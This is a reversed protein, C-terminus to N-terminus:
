RKALFRNAVGMDQESIDGAIAALRLRNLLLNIEEDLLQLRAAIYDSQAGLLELTTRSGQRHSRVTAALRERSLDVMRNLAAIRAKGSNAAFWLANVQREIELSMREYELRSKEALHYAEDKRASRYGDTLPVTLQVGLLGNNSRNTATGFDGNGKARQADVQAILDLRPSFANGFKDIEARKAQEQLALMKLQQNNQRARAVWDSASGLPMSEADFREDLGEVKIQQGTLETLMLLDNQYAQETNLLKLKIAEVQEATARLDIRSADGLNARRSIEAHTNDVAQQQEQLLSLMTNMRLAEFYNESVRLMLQQDAAVMGANAVESSLRLQEKQASLERNYLPQVAQLAYRGMTGSNISNNFSANNYTGLQPQSFQAGTMASNQRVLGASAVLNVSPRLLSDGAERRAEGASKESQAAQYERDHGKAAQWVELLDAALAQPAQAAGALIALVAFTTVKSNMRINM